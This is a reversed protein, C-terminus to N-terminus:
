IKIFKGKESWDFRIWHLAIDEESIYVLEDFWIAFVNYDPLDATVIGQNGKKLCGIDEILVVKENLWDDLYDNM